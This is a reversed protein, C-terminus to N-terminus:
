SLYLNNKLFLCLKTLSPSIQKELLMDYKFKPSNRLCFQKMKFKSLFKLIQELVLGLQQVTDISLCYLFAPLILKTKITSDVNAIKFDRM